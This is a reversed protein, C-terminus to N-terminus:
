NKLVRKKRLQIIKEVALLIFCPVSPVLCVVSLVLYFASGFVPLHPGDDNAENLSQTELNSVKILEFLGYTGIILLGTMIVWFLVKLAKKLKAKM